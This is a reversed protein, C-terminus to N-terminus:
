EGIYGQPMKHLRLSEAEIEAGIGLGLTTLGLTGIASTIETLSLRAMPAASIATVSTARALTAIALCM